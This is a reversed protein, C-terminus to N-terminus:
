GAQPGLLSQAAGTLLQGVLSILLAPLAVMALMQSDINGPRPQAFQYFTDIAPILLPLTAFTLAAYRVAPSAPLITEGRDPM